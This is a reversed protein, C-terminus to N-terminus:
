SPMHLAKKLAEWDREKGNIYNLKFEYISSPWPEDYSYGELMDLVGDKIYLLFGVGGRVGTIEGIVDGFKVDFGPIRVINEPVSFTTYFGCGTLERKIVSCLEIQNRLRMLEPFNGSLLKQLVAKELLSLTNKM